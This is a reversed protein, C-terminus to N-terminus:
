PTRSAERRRFDVRQRRSVRLGDMDATRFGAAQRALAIGCPDIGVTLAETRIGEPTGSTVMGLVPDDPEPQVNAQPISFGIAIEAEGVTIDNIFSRLASRRTKVPASGLTRKLSEVYPLVRDIEVKHVRDLTEDGKLALRKAELLKLEEQRANLRPLIADACQEGNELVDLLRGLQGRKKRIQRGLLRLEGRVVEDRDGLEENVERALRTLHAPELLVDRTKELVIAELRDRNIMGLPCAAKGSELYTRCAYYHFSGSKASAGYLRQDCHKCRLLGSLLYDSGLSRPSTKARERLIAQVQKFTELDVIPEHANEIHIVRDAEPVYRASRTTFEIHLTGCYASNRLLDLIAKRTWRRGTRTRLGEANLRKAIEKAGIGESVYTRFVRRVLPATEEDAVLRFRKRKGEGVEVRRYGVPAMSLPYFGQRAVECTGRISDVASRRPKQSDLLEFLGEVLDEDVGPNIPETISIVKTGHQRLLRKYVASHVRDRSFRSFSWVLVAAVDGECIGCFRIMEQFQPRKDTAGSVGEDIFERLIVHGGEDCCGRLRDLQAPISLGKDAQRDTSVRAYLVVNM